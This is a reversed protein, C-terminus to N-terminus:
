PRCGGWAIARKSPTSGPAAATMRALAAVANAARAEQMFGLVANAVVVMTIVIADRLVFDDPAVASPKVTAPM